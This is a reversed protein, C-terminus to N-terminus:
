HLQGTLPSIEKQQQTRSVIEATVESAISSDSTDNTIQETFSEDTPQSVISDFTNNLIEQIIEGEELQIIPSNQAVPTKEEESTKDKIHVSPRSQPKPSEAPKKSVSASIKWFWPDDYIVQVQQGNQFADLVAMAESSRTNWKGPAFHVFARKHTGCPIVDVREVFGWNCAIMNAKIRRWGINNFVRPICLSVGIKNDCIIERSKSTKSSKSSM